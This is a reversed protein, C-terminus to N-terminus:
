EHQRKRTRGSARPSKQQNQRLHLSEGPKEHAEVSHVQGIVVVHAGHYLLVEARRAAEPEVADGADGPREHVESEIKHAGVREALSPVRVRRTFARECLLRSRAVMAYAVQRVTWPVIDLM